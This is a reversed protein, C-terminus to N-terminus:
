MVHLRSLRCTRKFRSTPWTASGSRRCSIVSSTNTYPRWGTGVTLRLAPVLPDRFRIRNIDYDRARRVLERVAENCLLFRELSSDIRAM